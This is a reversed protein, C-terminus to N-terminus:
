EGGEVARLAANFQEFPQDAFLWERLRWILAPAPKPMTWGQEVAACLWDAMPTKTM